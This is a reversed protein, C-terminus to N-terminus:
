NEKNDRAIQNTKPISSGRKDAAFGLSSSVMTFLIVLKMNDWVWLYEQRHHLCSFHFFSLNHLDTQAIAGYSHEIQVPHVKNVLMTVM